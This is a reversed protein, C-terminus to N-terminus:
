YVKKVRYITLLATRPLVNHLKKIVGIGKNAKAVKETIHHGFDLKEVLNM